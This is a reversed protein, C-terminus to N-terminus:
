FCTPALFFGASDDAHSTSYGYELDPHILEGMGRMPTVVFVLFMYSICRSGSDDAHFASAWVRFGEGAPDMLFDRVQIVPAGVEWASGGTDDDPTAAKFYM